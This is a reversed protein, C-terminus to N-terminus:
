GEANNRNLAWAAGLAFGIAAALGLATMPKDAVNDRTVDAANNLAQQSKGYLMKAKGALGMAPDGLMRGALHQAEGAVENAVAHAHRTDM